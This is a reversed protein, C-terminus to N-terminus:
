LRRPAANMKEDSVSTRSAALVLMGDPEAPVRAPRDGSGSSAPFALMLAAALM